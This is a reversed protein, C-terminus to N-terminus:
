LPQGSLIEPVRGSTLIGQLVMYLLASQTSSLGLDIFTLRPDEIISYFDEIVPDTAVAAKIAIREASTFLLKFEIPSVKPFVQANVAAAKIAAADPILELTATEFNYRWYDSNFEEFFDESVQIDSVLTRSSNTILGTSDVFLNIV